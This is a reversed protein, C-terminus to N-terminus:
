GSVVRQIGMVSDKMYNEIEEQAFKNTPICLVKASVQPLNCYMGRPYAGHTVLMQKLTHDNHVEMYRGDFDRYFMQFNNKEVFKNRFWKRFRTYTDPGTYVYAQHRVMGTAAFHMQLSFQFARKFKPQLITHAIIDPRQLYVPDDLLSKCEKWLMRMEEETNAPILIPPQEMFPTESGNPCVLGSGFARKKYSKKSTLRPPEQPPQKIKESLKEKAMQILDQHRYITEAEVSNQMIVPQPETVRPPPSSHCGPLHKVSSDIIEKSAQNAYAELEIM